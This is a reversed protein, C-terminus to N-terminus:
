RGATSAPAIALSTPVEADVTNPANETASSTAAATPGYAPLNMSRRPPRETSIAMLTTNAAPSAASLWAVSALWTNAAQANIPRAM